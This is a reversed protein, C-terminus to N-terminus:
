TEIFTVEAKSDVPLVYEAKTRPHKSSQSRNPYTKRAQPVSLIKSRTNGSLNVPCDPKIRHQVLDKPVCSSHPNNDVARHATDTRARLPALHPCRPDSDTTNAMWPISTDVPKGRLRSVSHYPPDESNWSLRTSGSIRQHCTYPLRQSKALVATFWNKGGERVERQLEHNM